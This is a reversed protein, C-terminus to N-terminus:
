AWRLWRRLEEANFTVLKGEFEIGFHQDPVQPTTYTTVKVGDFEAEEQERKPHHWFVKAGNSLEAYGRDRVPMLAFGGKRTQAKNFEDLDAVDQESYTTKRM